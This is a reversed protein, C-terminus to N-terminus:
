EDLVKGLSYEHKGKDFHDPHSGEIKYGQSLKIALNVTNDAYIECFIKGFGADRIEQEMAESMFRGYGKGRHKEDICSFRTIALHESLAQYCSVGVVVNDALLIFFNLKSFLKEPRPFYKPDTTHHEKLFEVIFRAADLTPSAPRLKLDVEQSAAQQSHADQRRRRDM